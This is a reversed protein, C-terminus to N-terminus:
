ANRWAHYDSEIDLFVKVGQMRLRHLGMLANMTFRFELSRDRVHVMQGDILQISAAFVHESPIYINELGKLCFQTFRNKNTTDASLIDIM